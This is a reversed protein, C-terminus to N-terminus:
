SVAELVQGAEFRIKNYELGLTKLKNKNKLCNALEGMSTDDLDNNYLFLEELTENDTLAKTLGTLGLNGILNSELSLKQLKFLAAQCTSAIERAGGFGICNNSLGLINLSSKDKIMKAVIVAGESNIDNSYLNLEALVTNAELSTALVELM